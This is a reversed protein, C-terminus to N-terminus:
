CSSGIVVIGPVNLNCCNADSQTYLSLHLEGGCAFSVTSQYQTVIVTGRIYLVVILVFIRRYRWRVKKGCNIALSLFM